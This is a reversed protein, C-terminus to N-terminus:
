EERFAIAVISILDDQGCTDCITVEVPDMVEIAMDEDPGMIQALPGVMM